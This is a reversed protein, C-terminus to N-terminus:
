EPEDRGSLAKLAKALADRLRGPRPPPAPLAVTSESEDHRTPAANRPASRVAGNNPTLEPTDESAWTEVLLTHDGIRVRDGHKLRRRDHLRVGNVFTGNLSGADEVCPTGGVLTFRAHRRSVNRTCLRVDCGEASRGVTVDSTLPFSRRAGREDEFVLRYPM